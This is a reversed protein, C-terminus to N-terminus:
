RTEILTNKKLTEELIGCLEKTPLALAEKRLIFLMDYGEQLRFFLKEFCSRFRRKLRNRVVATRAIKKSVIFGATTYALENKVFKVIFYQTSAVKAHTFKTHKQLRFKRPLM